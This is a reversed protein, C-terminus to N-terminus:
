EGDNSRRNQQSRKQLKRIEQEYERKIDEDSKPPKTAKTVMREMEQEARERAEEPMEAIRKRRKEADRRWKAITKEM